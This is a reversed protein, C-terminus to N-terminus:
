APARTVLGRVKIGGHDTLFASVLPLGTRLAARRDAALFAASWGPGLAKIRAGLAQWLPGLRDASGIRHGFPPNCVVAGSAATLRLGSAASLSAHEVVLEAGVGAREANRSTIAVAGADRDSAHIPALARSLELAAFEARVAEMLGDALPVVREAAFSRDRGPAIRRALRAAEIAITGSGCTPDVFPTATSWGSARILAAALDERLPAKATELRWGREHLPRGSTDISLTCLDDAMRVLVTVPEGEGGPENGIATAIAVAVREALGGTHLLRSQRAAARVAFPVDDRLWARWDVQMAKRELEGFHRARFREVRVLVHSACALGLNLRAIARRDGRLAVGGDGVRFSEPPVDLARCEAAVFEELGPLCAVFLDFLDAM